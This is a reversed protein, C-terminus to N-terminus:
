PTLEPRKETVVLEALVDPERPGLHRPPHAVRPPSLYANALHNAYRPFKDNPALKTVVCSGDSMNVVVGGAM